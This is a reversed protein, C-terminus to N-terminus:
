ATLQFAQCSRSREWIKVRLFEDIDPKVMLRRECCLHELSHTVHINLRYRRAVKWHNSDLCNLCSLLEIWSHDRSLEELLEIARATTDPSNPTPRFPSPM